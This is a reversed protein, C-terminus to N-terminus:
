SDVCARLGAESLLGMENWKKALQRQGDGVKASKRRNISDPMFELNFLENDLNVSACIHCIKQQSAM